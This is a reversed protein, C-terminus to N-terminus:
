EKIVQLFETVKMRMNKLTSNDFIKDDSVITFNEDRLYFLHMLDNVDNRGALKRDFEFGKSAGYLHNGLLVAVLASKDRQPMANVIDPEEYTISLSDLVARLLSAEESNADIDSESEELGFAKKIDIQVYTPNEKQERKLKKINIRDEEIQKSIIKKYQQEREDDSDKSKISDVGMEKKLKDQYEDFSSANRILKIKSKFCYRRM